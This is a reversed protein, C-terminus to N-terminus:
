NQDLKGSLYGITEQQRLQLSVITQLQSKIEQLDLMIIEITKELAEHHSCTPMATKDQKKRKVIIRDIAIKISLAITTILLALASIIEPKDFM